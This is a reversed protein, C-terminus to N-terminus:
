RKQVSRNSKDNTGKVPSSSVFSLPKFNSLGGSGTDSVNDDENKGGESTSDDQIIIETVMEEEEVDEDPMPLESDNINELVMEFEDESEERRHQSVIDKRDPKEVPASKSDEKEEAMESDESEDDTVNLQISIKERNSDMRSPKRNKEPQNLSGVFNVFM